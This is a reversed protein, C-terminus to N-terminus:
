QADSGRKHLLFVQSMGVCQFDLPAGGDFGWQAACEVKTKEHQTNDSDQVRSSSIKTYHQM